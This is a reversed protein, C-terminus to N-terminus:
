NPSRIAKVHREEDSTKPAHKSCGSDVRVAPFYNAPVTEMGMIPKGPDLPNPKMREVPILFIKPPELHCLGGEENSKRFYDCTHCTKM